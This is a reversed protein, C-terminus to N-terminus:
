EQKQEKKRAKEEQQQAKKREKEEQQQEKIRAEEERARADREAATRDIMKELVLKRAYLDAAMRCMLDFQQLLPREEEPVDAFSQGAEGAQRELDARIAQMQKEVDRGVEKYIDSLTVSAGTDERPVTSSKATPQAYKDAVPSVVQSIDSISLVSKMYFIMVLLLLHDKGYKKKVPPILVKNKVYNNIMTKTLIKDEEPHRTFDRLHDEMFTTVQDMYLDIDPFDEPETCTFKQLDEEMKQELDAMTLSM